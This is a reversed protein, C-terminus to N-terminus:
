LKTSRLVGLNQLRPSAHQYPDRAPCAAKAGPCDQCVHITRSVNLSMEQFSLLSHLQESNGHDKYTASITRRRRSANEIEYGFDSLRVVIISQTEEAVAEPEEGWYEAESNAELGRIVSDGGLGTWVAPVLVVGPVM